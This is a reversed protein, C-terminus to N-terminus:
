LATPVIVIRTLIPPSLALYGYRVQPTLDTVAHGGAEWPLIGNTAITNQGFLDKM